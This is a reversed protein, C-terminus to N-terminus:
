DMNYQSTFRQLSEQLNNLEQEMTGANSNFADTNQNQAARWRQDLETRKTRLNELDRSFNPSNRVSSNQSTAQQLTRDVETRLETWKNQLAEKSPQGFTSQPQRDTNTQSRPSNTTMPADDTRRSAANSGDRQCALSFLILSTVGLKKYIMTTDGKLMKKIGM